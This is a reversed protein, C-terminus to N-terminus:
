DEYNKKKEFRKRSKEEEKWIKEELHCRSIREGGGRFPYPSVRSLSQTTNGPAMFETFSPERSGYVPDGWIIPLSAAEETLRCERPL